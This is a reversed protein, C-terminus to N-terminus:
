GKLASLVHLTQCLPIGRGANQSRSEYVVPPATVHSIPEEGRNWYPLFLRKMDVDGKATAIAYPHAHEPASPDCGISLLAEAAAIQGHFSAYSLASWGGQDLWNINETNLGVLLVITPNGVAAAMHLLAPNQQGQKRAECLARFVAVADENAMAEEVNTAKFDVFECSEYKRRIIVLRAELETAFTINDSDPLLEQLISNARTNGIDEFLKLTRSELQDLTLSRVKSVQTGMRRHAGSCAICICVGWNICCWTPDGAGCDACTRNAARPDFRDVSTVAAISRRPDISTNDLLYQINNRIVQMWEQADWDTLAQLVYSGKESSILTFTFRRSHDTFPKVSTLLLNLRESLEEPQQLMYWFDYDRCVFYYRKWLKSVKADRKWLWGEHTLVDSGPFKVNLRTSYLEHANELSKALLATNGAFAQVAALSEPLTDQLHNQVRTTQEAELHCDRYCDSALRVFTLFVTTIDVLKKREVLSLAREFLFDAYVARWHTQMLHLDREGTEHVLKKKKTATYSDIYRFYADHSRLAERGAEEVADMDKTIFNGLPKVVESQVQTYHIRYVEQFRRILEPMALISSDAQIETYDSVIKAMIDM